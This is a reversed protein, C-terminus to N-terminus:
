FKGRVEAHSETRPGDNELRVRPRLGAARDHREDDTVRGTPEAAQVPQFLFAQEAANVGLRSPLADAHLTALHPAHSRGATQRSSARSPRTSRACWPWGETPPRGNALGKPRSAAHNVLTCAAWPM